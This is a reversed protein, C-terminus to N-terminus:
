DSFHLYLWNSKSFQSRIIHLYLYLSRFFEMVVSPLPMSYTRTGARQYNTTLTMIMVVKPRPSPELIKRRPVTQRLFIINTETLNPWNLNPKKKHHVTGSRFIMSGSFCGRYTIYTSSYNPELVLIYTSSGFSFLTIATTAELKGFFLWFLRLIRRQRPFVCTDSM